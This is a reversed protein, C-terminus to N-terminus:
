LTGLICEFTKTSKIQKNELKKLTEKIKSLPIEKNLKKYIQNVNTTLGSEINYFVNIIKKEQENM